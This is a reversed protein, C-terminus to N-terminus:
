LFQQTTMLPKKKESQLPIRQLNFFMIKGYAKKDPVMPFPTLVKVMSRIGNGSVQIPKETQTPIRGRKEIILVGSVSINEETQGSLLEMDMSKIMKTTETTDAAMVGLSLAKARWKITLGNDMTFVVTQGNINVKGTFTTRFSIETTHARILGYSNEKVM